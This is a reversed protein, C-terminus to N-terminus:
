SLYNFFGGKNEQINDTWNSKIAHNSWKNRPSPITKNRTVALLDWDKRDASLILSVNHRLFLWNYVELWLYDPCATTCSFVNKSVMYINLVRLQDVNHSRTMHDSLFVHNIHAAVDSLPMYCRSKVSVRFSLKTAQKEDAKDSSSPVAVSLDYKM